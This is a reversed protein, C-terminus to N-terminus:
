SSSHLVCRSGRLEALAGIALAYLCAGGSQLLKMVPAKVKAEFFASM